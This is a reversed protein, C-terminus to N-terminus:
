DGDFTLIDLLWVEENEQSIQMYAKVISSWKPEKPRELLESNAPITNNCIQSLLDVEHEALEAIDIPEELIHSFHKLM